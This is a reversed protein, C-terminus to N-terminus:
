SHATARLATMASIIIMSSGVGTLSDAESTQGLIRPIISIAIVVIGGFAVPLAMKALKKVTVADMPSTVKVSYYTMALNVDLGLVAIGTIVLPVSM